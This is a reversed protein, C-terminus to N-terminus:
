RRPRPRRHQRQPKWEGEKQQRAGRRRGAKPRAAAAGVKVEPSQKLEEIHDRLAAAKEFDLAEAAELMEKELTTILEDRDYEQEDEHVAERVRRMAAVETILSSRIAKRVTDPTIGHERNYALQIERRRNTEDMAQQMAPTIKDAYLVVRANVNRACRGIM